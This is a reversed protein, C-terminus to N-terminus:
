FSLLVWKYMDEKDMWPHVSLTGRIEAVTFLAAIFKWTCTGKQILAEM